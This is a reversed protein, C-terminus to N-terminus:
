SASERFFAWTLLAVPAGFFVLGTVGTAWLTAAITLSNCFIIWGRRSESSALSGAYIAILLYILTLGGFAISKGRASDSAFTLFGFLTLAAGLMGAVRLLRKGTVLPVGEDEPPSIRAALAEARLREADRMFTVPDELYLSVRKATPIGVDLTRKGVDLAFMRQPVGRVAEVEVWSQPREQGLLLQRLLRAASGYTEETKLEISTVDQWRFELTANSNVSLSSRTLVVRAKRGVSRFMLLGIVCSPVLYLVAWAADSLSIAGAALLAATVAVVGIMASTLIRRAGVVLPWNSAYPYVLEREGPQQPLMTLM